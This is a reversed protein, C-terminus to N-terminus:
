TEAKEVEGLAAIPDTEPQDLLALMAHVTALM